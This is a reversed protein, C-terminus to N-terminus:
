KLINGDADIYGEDYIKKLIMRDSENKEIEYQQVTVERELEEIQKQLKPVSKLTEENEEQKAENELKQKRTIAKRLLHNSRGKAVVFM